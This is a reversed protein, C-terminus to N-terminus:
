EAPKGPANGPRARRVWADAAAKRDADKEYQAALRAEYMSQPNQEVLNQEM